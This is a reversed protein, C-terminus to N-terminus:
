LNYREGGHRLMDIAFSDLLFGWNAKSTARTTWNRLRSAGISLLRNHFREPSRSVFKQRRCLSLGSVYDLGVYERRLASHSTSIWSQIPGTPTLRRWRKHTSDNVLHFGHSLTDSKRRKHLAFTQVCGFPTNLCYQSTPMRTQSAIPPPM